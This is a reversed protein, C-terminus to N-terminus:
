QKVELEAIRGDLQKIKAWAISLLEEYRMTCLPNGEEDEGVCWAALEESDINHADMASKLQQAVFGTHYRGSTGNVLKYRKPEVDDFMDVYKQPLDEIDMKLSEDSGVNPSNAIYLNNWRIGSTGLNSYDATNPRATDCAMQITPGGDLYLVGSEATLSMAGNSSRIDIASGQTSSAARIYIYGRVVSNQDILQVTGGRLTTATVTGTMLRTGDIYTTGYYQWGSVINNANNALTYASNANSNAVSATNLASSATSQADTIEGQADSALDSWTIAGTLNLDAANIQSANLEAANITSADIQGGDITLTDGQANTITVGDAAIRVTQGLDEELNQVDLTISELKVTISASLDDIESEVLLQIEEASKSILSRTQALKYNIEQTQAGDVKYEHDLESSGPAALDVVAGSSFRINQYALQTYEGDITMGDGLESLPSVRAGTASIPKYEYGELDSLISDAMNQTAYPCDAELVTGTEDGAMYVNEDDVYLRVGSVPPYSGIKDIELAKRGVYVKGNM